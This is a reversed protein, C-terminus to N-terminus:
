RQISDLIVMRYLEAKGKQPISRQREMSNPMVKGHLKANFNIHLGAHPPEGAKFSQQM